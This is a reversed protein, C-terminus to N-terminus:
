LVPILPTLNSNIESIEFLPIPDSEIETCHLQGKQRQRINSHCYLAHRNADFLASV